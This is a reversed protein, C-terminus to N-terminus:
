ARTGKRALEPQLAARMRAVLELRYLIRVVTVISTLMGLLIFM